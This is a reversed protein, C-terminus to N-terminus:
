PNSFQAQLSEKGDHSKLLIRRKNPSERLDFPELIVGKQSLAFAVWIKLPAPAHNPTGKWNGLPGRATVLHPSAEMRLLLAGEKELMLRITPSSPDTLLIAKLVIAQASRPTWLAQWVEGKQLNASTRPHTAPSPPLSCGTWALPIVALVISWLLIGHIYKPRQDQTVISTKLVGELRVNKRRAKKSTAEM